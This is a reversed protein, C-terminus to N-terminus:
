KWYYRIAVYVVVLCAFILAVPMPRKANPDSASAKKAPLRRFATVNGSDAVPERVRAPVEPAKGAGGMEVYYTRYMQQITAEGADAESMQGLLKNYIALFNQAEPPLASAGNLKAMMKWTAFDARARTDARRAILM